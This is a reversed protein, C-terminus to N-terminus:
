TLPNRFAANWTQRGILEDDNLGQDRQFAAALEAYEDGYRGDNGHDSLYRKGEGVPWGRRGLQNGWAKLWYAADHGNFVRPHRGSVSQNPGDAPGFYHGAPLPFALAPGPAPRTGEAPKAPKSPKAGTAHGALSGIVWAHLKDGPCETSGLQRHTRVALKGGKLRNAEKYLYALSAKVAAPPATDEYDGIVCVGINATNHGQIHAGVKLWGRGEYIDGNPRVLWNYGIDVWGRTDMHFNQIEQVSQKPNAGSHHVAFGKRADWTTSREERATRAHWDDRHYIRM